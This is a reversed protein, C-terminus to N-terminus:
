SLFQEDVGGIAFDTKIQATFLRPTVTYITLDSPPVVDPEVDALIRSVSVLRNVVDPPYKIFSALRNM